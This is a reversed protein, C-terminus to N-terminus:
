YQWYTCEGNELQKELERLREVEVILDAITNRSLAIFEADLGSM